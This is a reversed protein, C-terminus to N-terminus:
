VKCQCHWERGSSWIEEQRYEFVSVVGIRSSISGGDCDSSSVEDRNRRHAGPDETLVSDGIPVLIRKVVCNRRLCNSGHCDDELESYSLLVDMLRGEADRTTLKLKPHASKAQM